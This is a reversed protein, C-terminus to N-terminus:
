LGASSNWPSPAWAAGPSSLRRGAPIDLRKGPADLPRREGPHGAWGPARRYGSCGRHLGGEKERPSGLPPLKFDDRWPDFPGARREPKRLAPRGM